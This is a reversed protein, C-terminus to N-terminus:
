LRDIFGLLKSEFRCMQSAARCPCKPARRNGCTGVLYCASTLSWDVSGCTRSGFSIAVQLAQRRRLVHRCVLVLVYGPVTVMMAKYFGARRGYTTNADFTIMVDKVLLNRASQRLDKEFRHQFNSLMNEDDYALGKVADDEDPCAHGDDEDEDDPEDEMKADESGTRPWSIGSLRAATFAFLFWRIMPKAIFQAGCKASAGKARNAHFILACSGAPKASLLATILQLFFGYKSSPVVGCTPLPLWLVVGEQSADRLYTMSEFGKELWPLLTPVVTEDTKISWVHLADQM